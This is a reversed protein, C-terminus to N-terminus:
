SQSTDGPGLECAPQSFQVSHVTEQTLAQRSLLAMAERLFEMRATITANTPHSKLMGKRKRKHYDVRENVHNEKM